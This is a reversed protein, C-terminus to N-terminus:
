VQFEHKTKSFFQSIAQYIYYGLSIQYYILMFQDAQQPWKIYLLSGDVDYLDDENEIAKAGLGAIFLKTIFKWSEDMFEITFESYKEKTDMYNFYEYM